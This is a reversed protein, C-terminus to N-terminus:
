CILLIFNKSILTYLIITYFQDYRQHTNVVIAFLLPMKMWLTTFCRNIFFLYCIFLTYNKSHLIHFIVTYFQDYLERTNVVMAFLLTMKMWLTCFCRNIFSFIASSYFLIRPFYCISFLLISSTMVSVLTLQWQLYFRWRWECFPSAVFSRPNERFFLFCACPVGPLNRPTPQGYVITSGVAKATAWCM